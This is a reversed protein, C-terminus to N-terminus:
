SCTRRYKCLSTVLSCSRSVPRTNRTTSISIKRWVRCSPQPMTIESVSNANASPCQHSHACRDIYNMLYVLIALPMILADIRKRLQKEIVKEADTLEAMHVVEEHSLDVKEGLDADSIVNKDTMNLTYFHRGSKLVWPCGNGPVALM